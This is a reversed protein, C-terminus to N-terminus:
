LARGIVDAASALLAARARRARHIQARYRLAAIPRAAAFRQESNPISPAAQWQANRQAALMHYRNAPHNAMHQARTSLHTRSTPCQEGWLM